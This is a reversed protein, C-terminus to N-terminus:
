VVGKTGLEDSITDEKRGCGQNLISPKNEVTPGSVEGTRSRAKELERVVDILGQEVADTVEHRSANKMEIEFAKMEPDYLAMSKRVIASDLKGKLAGKERRAGIMVKALRKAKFFVESIKEFYAVDDYDYGRTAYFEALVLNDEKAAWATMERAEIALKDPTWFIPRGTPKTKEISM